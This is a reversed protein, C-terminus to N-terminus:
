ITSVISVLSLDPLLICMSNDIRYMYPYISMGRLPASTRIRRSLLNVKFKNAALVRLHVSYVYIYVISNNNVVFHCFPLFTHRAFQHRSHTVKKLNYLLKINHIYSVFRM